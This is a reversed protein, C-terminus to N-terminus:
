FRVGLIYRKRITPPKKGPRSARSGRVLVYPFFLLFLDSRCALSVDRLSVPASGDRHPAAGIAWVGFRLKWPRTFVNPNAITAEYDINDADVMTFREIM